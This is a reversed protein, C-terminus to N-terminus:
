KSGNLFFFFFFTLCFVAKRLQKLEKSIMLEYGLWNAALTSGFNLFLSSSPFFFTIKGKNM